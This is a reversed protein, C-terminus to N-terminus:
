VSPGMNFPGRRAQANINGLHRLLLFLSLPIAAQGLRDRVPAKPDTPLIAAMDEGCNSQVIYM